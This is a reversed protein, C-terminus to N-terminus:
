LAPRPHLPSVPVSGPNPAGSRVNKGMVESRFVSCLDKGAKKRRCSRSGSLLARITLSPTPVSTRMSLRTSDLTLSQYASFGLEVVVGLDKSLPSCRSLPYLEPM